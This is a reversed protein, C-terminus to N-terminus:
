VYAKKTFGLAKGHLVIGRGIRAGLIHDLLHVGELSGFFEGSVRSNYTWLGAPELGLLGPPWELPSRGFRRGKGMM